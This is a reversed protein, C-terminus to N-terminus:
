QDGQSEPEHWHDRADTLTRGAVPRRLDKVVQAYRDAAEKVEHIRTVHALTDATKGVAALEVAKLLEPEKQRQITRIETSQMGAKLLQEFPKSAEIAKTQATDGLFVVRAHHAEVINMTELTQRAPVVSSGDVFIVTGSNLKKNKAKLFSQLTRAEIGESELAKKQSGYAALTSKCGKKHRSPEDIHRM